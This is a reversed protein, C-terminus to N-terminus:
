EAVASRDKTLKELFREMDNNAKRLAEKFLDSYMKSYPSEKEGKMIDCREEIYELSPEQIAQLRNQFPTGGEQLLMHQAKEKYKNPRLAFLALPVFRSFRPDPDIEASTIESTSDFIDAGYFADLIDHFLFNDRFGSAQAAMWLCELCALKTIYPVDPELLNTACADIFDGYFAGLSLQPGLLTFACHPDCTSGTEPDLGLVLCTIAKPCFDDDIYKQKLQASVEKKRDSVEPIYHQNKAGVYDVTDRYKVRPMNIDRDDLKYQKQLLKVSASDNTTYDAPEKLLVCLEDPTMNYTQAMQALIEPFIQCPQLNELFTSVQLFAEPPLGKGTWFKAANDKGPPCHIAIGDHALASLLFNIRAAQQGQGDNKCKLCDTYLKALVPNKGSFFLAELPTMNKETDLFKNLVSAAASKPNFVARLWVIEKHISAIFDTENEFIESCVEKLHLFYIELFTRREEDIESQSKADIAGGLLPINKVFFAYGKTNTDRPNGTDLLVSYDIVNRVNNEKLTRTKANSLIKNKKGAGYFRNLFDQEIQKQEEPTMTGSSAIGSPALAACNLVFCLLINLKKERFM